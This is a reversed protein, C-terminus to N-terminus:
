VTSTNNLALNSEEPSATNLFIYCEEEYLEELDVNVLLEFLFFHSTMSAYVGLRLPTCISRVKELIM